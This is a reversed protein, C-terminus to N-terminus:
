LLSKIKSLNDVVSQYGFSILEDYRKMDFSTINSQIPTLVLDAYQYLDKSQSHILLDLGRDVMHLINKPLTDIAIHPIVDVAITSSVKLCKMANVPLNSSAGGDIYYQDGIKVPSYVGPFFASARIVKALTLDQDYFVEGEGSLVNTAFTSFPIKSESLKMSGVYSQVLQEIGRSSVMGRKSLQFSAFSRWKMKKLDNILTHIPVGAAYLGAVLSGSSVGSIGHIPIENEDCALLVGLHAIGRAAGGGLAM